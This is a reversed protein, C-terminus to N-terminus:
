GQIVRYGEEEIASLIQSEEISSEDYEIKVKGIEVESNTIGLNMLASKVAMVCHNCSMGDIKLETTKM